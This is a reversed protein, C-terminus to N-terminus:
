SETLLNSTVDVDNCIGWTEKLIERFTTRQYLMSERLQVLLNQAEELSLLKVQSEFVQLEFQNELPLEKRINM